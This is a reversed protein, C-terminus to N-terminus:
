RPSFTVRVPPAERDVRRNSDGFSYRLSFGAVYEDFDSAETGGAFGVLDWDSNLQYAGELVGSLGVRESGDAGYHGFGAHSPLIPEAPADFSPPDFVFLRDIVEGFIPVDNSLSLTPRSPPPPTIALSGGAQLVTAEFNPEVLSTEILAPEVVEDDSFLDLLRVPNAEEALALASQPADALWDIARGFWGEKKNEDSWDISTALALTAADEGDISTGAAGEAIVAGGPQLTPIPTLVEQEVAVVSVPEIPASVAVAEVPKPAQQVPEVVVREVPANTIRIPDEEQVPPQKAAAQVIAMGEAAMAELETGYLQAFSLGAAQYDDLRLSSWGAILAAADRIAQPAAASVGGTQDLALRFDGVDYALQARRLSLIYGQNVAAEILSDDGIAAARNAAAQLYDTAALFDGGKMATQFALLDTRFLLADLRADAGLVANLQTRAIGAEGDTLATTAAGIRADDGGGWELSRDFWLRAFALNGDALYAWGLKTAQAPQQSNQALNAAKALDGAELAAEFGVISLQNVLGASMADTSPLRALQQQAKLDDGAALATQAQGSIAAHGGGWHEARIFWQEAAALNGRALLREALALAPGPAKFGLAMRQATRLRDEHLLQNFEETDAAPVAAVQEAQAQPTIPAAHVACIAVLVAALGGWPHRGSIRDKDTHQQLPKMERGLKDTNPRM